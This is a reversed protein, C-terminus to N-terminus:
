ARPARNMALFPRENGESAHDQPHGVMASLALAIAADRGQAAHQYRLAAVSTSHGLRAMLEALTAGLQAALVASTHRLDHFRLDPRGAATRAPIWAAKYFNGHTWHAGSRTTFLLAQKSRAVHRELHAELAPVLHPPIAVTRVGADSKPRGIIEVRDVRVVARRVHVIPKDLDLDGRRLEFVEGFRLGCWAAILVAARLRDPTEEVLRGVEAVSVPRIERRRRTTGAGRIKCPNPGKVVGESLAQEFLSRLLAYAHAKQTPQNNPLNLYWRDVDTQRIAKLQLDGFTPFIVRELLGEYLKLTRPRLPEGRIRRRGIAEPAYDRLSTGLRRSPGRQAPPTWDDTESLRRERALWGEADTRAEFTHPALHRAFDPGLYSAQYRKSPLRRIAGFGRRGTAMRHEKEHLVRAIVTADWSM